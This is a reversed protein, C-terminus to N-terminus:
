AARRKGAGSAAAIALGSLRWVRLDGVPTGFGFNVLFGLSLRRSPDCFAGSGGYGFHGFAKDSRHLTLANVRHYGLRWSQPIFLVRDGGRVHPTTAERFTRAGLYRKGEFTGGEALMAYFRALARATFLGNAAPIAAALAEPSSFDFRGMGKPMLADRFRELTPPVYPLRTRRAPAGSTTRLLRAARAIVDPPAGIHFGDLGLPVRLETEVFRSFPMGSVREIVNGVLHGYTLAHYSSEPGRHAPTAAALRESTEDWDLLNRADGVIRRADYLGARHTLVDRITIDGKGGREFGPWHKAVADDYSVAGRDVLLHLATSTVGKTTSYAVCPTEREWLQGEADRRGGWLDVVMRGEHQVALSAGGPAGELMREFATALAGFAPDAHGSIRM